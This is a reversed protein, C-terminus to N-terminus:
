FINNVNIRKYPFKDLGLYFIKDVYYVIKMNKINQLCVQTCTQEVHQLKTCKEGCVHAFGCM